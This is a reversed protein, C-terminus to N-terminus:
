AAPSPSLLPSRGACASLSAQEVAQTQSVLQYAAGLVLLDSEKLGADELILRVELRTCHAQEIAAMVRAYGALAEYDSPNFRVAFPMTPMTAHGVGGGGVGQPLGSVEEEGPEKGTQEFQVLGTEAGFYPLPLPKSLAIKKLLPRCGGLLAVAENHTLPGTPAVKDIIDPM